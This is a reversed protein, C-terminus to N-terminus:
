DQYQFLWRSSLDSQYRSTQLRWTHTLSGGPSDKLSVVSVSVQLIVSQYRSTQLRWTHTLSGGSSDKLIFASVAVHMSSSQCMGPPRCGEPRWTLGKTPFSTGYLWIAKQCRVPYLDMFTLPMKVLKLLIYNSRLVERSTLEEPNISKECTKSLLSYIFLGQETSSVNLESWSEVKM